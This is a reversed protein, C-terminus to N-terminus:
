TKVGSVAAVYKAIEAEVPDVGDSNFNYPSESKPAKPNLTNPNASFNLWFGDLVADSNLQNLVQEPYFCGLIAKKISRSDLNFDITKKKEELVGRWDSWLEVRSKIEDADVNLMTNEKVPEQTSDQNLLLVKSTLGARPQFEPSLVSFHNYVRDSQKMKGDQNPAKKAYYASSTHTYKKDKIGQKLEEDWIISAMFLDNGDQAYEQLSLGKAFRNFNKTSIASPPHNLTVPRGVATNVSVPKVLEDVDIFEVKGADYNLDKNAVGISLWLKMFGDTTEEWNKIPESDLNLILDTM